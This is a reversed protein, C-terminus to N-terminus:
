EPQVFTARVDRAHAQPNHKAQGSPASLRYEVFTTELFPLFNNDSILTLRISGTADKWVSIGELNGSLDTTIELLTEENSLASESLAFRRVRVQFGIAGTLYRELLYFRGEPGIDAGTPLYKGRRPLSFPQEWAGDRYRYVPFPRTWAGSREPLTYLAGDHGIALAELASNSQLKEFAAPQPLVMPVREPAPYYWTRHDGEFSVYFGKTPVRARALGESDYALRGLTQGDTGRLLVVPNASIDNIKGSTPDRHLRGVVVGGRDTLALFDRGNAAVDLGSFGGFNVSDFHWVYRGLPEPMPRTNENGIPPSNAQPASGGVAPVAGVAWLGIGIAIAFRTSM